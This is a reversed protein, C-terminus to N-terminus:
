DKPHSSGAPLSKRYLRNVSELVKAPDGGQHLYAHIPEGAHDQFDLYGAYRPRVFALDLTELTDRFFNTCTANVAADTWASRHGPQGGTEYFLGRQTEPCAVFAAFAAAIDPHQCHSSIALGTGGLMTTPQYDPSVNVIGGFQLL